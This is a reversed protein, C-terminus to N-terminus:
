SGDKYQMLPFFVDRWSQPEHKIWGTRAMFKAYKLIGSPTTSYIMSGDKLMSMVEQKSTRSPESKLYIDAAASPESAIFAIADQLGAIIAGAVKPNAGVFAKSAALVVGTPEEGGVIQRTSIVEHVKDSDRLAAIFPPSAMYGTIARGALLATMADPHAMSVLLNDMRGHQGPGFVQEAAMRMLFTQPSSTAAVAIRDQDGFDALSKIETRNTFLSYTYASVAALAAVQQRGRTKDWIILMGPTGYAGIEISESLMADNLAPSGSIHHITVKLDGLGAKKAQAAYFGQDQALTIPLFALGYQIGIRVEAIEARASMAGFLATFGFVLASSLARGCNM